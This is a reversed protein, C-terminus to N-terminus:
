NVGEAFDGSVEDGNIGQLDWTSKRCNLEKSLKGIVKFIWNVRDIAIIPKTQVHGQEWFSNAVEIKVLLM